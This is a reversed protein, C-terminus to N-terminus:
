KFRFKKIKYKKVTSPIAETYYVIYLLLEFIHFDIFDNKDVINYKIFTTM